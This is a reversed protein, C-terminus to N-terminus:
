LSKIKNIINTTSYGEKFLLSLVKGGRGEVFKSGVIEEKKWDGGKVLVDPKVTQILNLPTDENFIFVFDVHRLSELFLKRDKESNVPREEGKLRKVSEDSNLGVVLLDGLSKAEKLYSLHGVHLIDFCGNTFVINKDIRAKEFSEFNM